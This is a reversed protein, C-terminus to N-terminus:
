FLYSIAVNFQDTATGAANDRDQYDAKLSIQLIPKTMGFAGACRPLQIDVGVIGCFARRCSNGQRRSCILFVLAGYNAFDPLM